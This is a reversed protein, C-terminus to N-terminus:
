RTATILSAAKEARKEWPTNATILTRGTVVKRRAHPNDRLYTKRFAPDSWCEHGEKAVWHWYSKPGTAIYDEECMESAIHEIRAATAALKEMQIRELCAAAHEGRLLDNATRLLLDPDSEWTRHALPMRDTRM